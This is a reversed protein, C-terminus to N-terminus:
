VEVTIGTTGAISRACIAGSGCKMWSGGGTRQRAATSATNTFRRKWIKSREKYTGAVTSM